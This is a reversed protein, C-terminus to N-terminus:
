CAPCAPSCLIIHYSLYAIYTRLCLCFVFPFMRPRKPAYQLTQSANPFRKFANLDNQSRISVNPLSPLRTLVIGYPIYPIYTAYYCSVLIQLPINPANLLPKSRDFGNIASQSRIPANPLSLLCPLSPLCPLCLGMCIYPITNYCLIM